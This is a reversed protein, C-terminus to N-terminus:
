PLYRTYIIIFELIFSQSNRHEQSEGSILLIGYGM